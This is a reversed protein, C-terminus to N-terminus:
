MGEILTSDDLRKDAIWLDCPQVLEPHRRDLKELLRGAEPVESRYVETVESSVPLEYDADVILHLKYGLCKKVRQWLTGDENQAWYAKVGVDALLKNSPLPLNSM